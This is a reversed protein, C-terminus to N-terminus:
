FYGGFPVQETRGLPGDTADFNDSFIKFHAISIIFVDGGIQKMRGFQLGLVSDDVQM